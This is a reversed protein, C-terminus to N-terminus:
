TARDTWIVINRLSQSLVAWWVRFAKSITSHPVGFRYAIDKYLLGLRLRMSVILVPDNSTLM